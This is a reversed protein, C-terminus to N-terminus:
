YHQIARKRRHIYAQPIREFCDVYKDTSTQSIMYIERDRRGKSNTGSKQVVMAKTVAERLQVKKTDTMGENSPEIPYGVTRTM